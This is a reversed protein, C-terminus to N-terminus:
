IFSLEDDSEEEDVMRKDLHRLAIAKRAMTTTVTAAPRFRAPKKGCLWNNNEKQHSTHLKTTTTTTTYATDFGLEDGGRTIPRSFRRPRAALLKRVTTTPTLKPSIEELDDFDLTIEPEDYTDTKYEDTSSEEDQAQQEASKDAEILSTETNPSSTISQDDEDSDAESESHEVDVGSLDSDGAVGEDASVSAAIDMESSYEEDDTGSPGDETEKEPSPLSNRASRRAPTATPVTGPTATVWESIVDDWRVGSFSAKGRRKPDPTACAAAKERLSEAFTHDRMDGTQEALRFAGDVRINSLAGKPLDLTELKDCLQELYVRPAIGTGRSCSFSISSMLATTADYQLMLSANGKCHAVGKWSSEIIASSTSTELTLFACLALLYTGLKRGEKKRRKLQKTSADVIYEVRRRIMATRNQPSNATDPQCDDMGETSLLVISGLAGIASILTNQPRGRIRTQPVGRPRTPSAHDCLLTLITVVFDITNECPKRRTIQRVTTPWLANFNDTLIWDSPLLEEGFLEALKKPVLWATGASDCIRTLIRLPRLGPFTFLDDGPSLPKPYPRNVYTDILDMFEPVPLYEHCVRILLDTVLDDFLGEAAADQIVKVGHARVVICLHRWGEVVGLSELESYIEFSLGSDKGIANPSDEYKANEEREWDIYAPVKRLCMAMLSKPAAAPNREPNTAKLLSDLAKFVSELLGHREADISARLSRMEMEFSCKTKCCVSHQCRKSGGGAQTPEDQLELNEPARNPSSQEHNRVRRLFPTPLAVEQSPRNGPQRRRRQGDGNGNGDRQPTTLHHSDRNNASASSTSGSSTRRSAATGKRSYKRSASKKKESYEEDSDPYNRDRKGLVVSKRPRSRVWPRQPPVISGNATRREKDKRLAAIHTLLPRLLRHCRTATWPQASESAATSHRSKNSQQKTQRPLLPLQLPNDM